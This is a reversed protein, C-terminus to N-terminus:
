GEFDDPRVRRIPPFPSGLAAKEDVRISDRQGSDHAAGVPMTYGEQLGRQIPDDDRAGWRLRAAVVEAAVFAVGPRRCGVGPAGPPPDDLPRVRPQVAEPFEQHAELLGRGTV